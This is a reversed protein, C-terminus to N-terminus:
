KRNAVCREKKLTLKKELQPISLVEIGLLKELLIAVPPSQFHELKITIFKLVISSAWKNKCYKIGRILTFNVQRLNVYCAIFYFYRRKYIENRIKGVNISHSKSKKDPLRLTGSTHVKIINTSLEWVRVTIHTM